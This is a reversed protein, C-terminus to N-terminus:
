DSWSFDLPQTTSPQFSFEDHVVRMKTVLARIKAAGVCVPEHYSMLKLYTKDAFFRGVDERCCFWLEVVADIPALVFGAPWPECIRHSIVFQRLINLLSTEAIIAKGYTSVARHFSDYDNDGRRKLLVYVKILGNENIDIQPEYLREEKAIIVEGSGDQRIFRLEDPQILEAYLPNGLWASVESLGNIWVESAGEFATTQSYHAPLGPVVEPYVHGTSYKRMFQSFATVNMVHPSHHKMWYLHFARHSMGPRRIPFEIFKVIGDNNTWPTPERPEYDIWPGPLPLSM